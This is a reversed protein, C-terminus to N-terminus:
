YTKRSKYFQIEEKVVTHVSPKSHIIYFEWIKFLSKMLISINIFYLIYQM